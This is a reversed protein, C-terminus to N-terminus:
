NASREFAFKGRAHLWSVGWRTPAAMRSVPATKAGAMEGASRGVMRAVSSLACAAAL